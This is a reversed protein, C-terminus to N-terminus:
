QRRYIRVGAIETELRYRARLWDWLRPFQELEAYRYSYDGHSTDLIYPPPAADLDHMLMDWGEPVNHGRAEGGSSASGSLVHTYVFRTSPCRDAAQYLPPFWGWVFVREDQRTHARVYDGALRYDPKPTFFSETAAEFLSAYVFFAVALAGSLWVLPRPVGGDAGVGALVALPPLMMLFYHGYMRGGVLAAALMGGLWWWIPAAAAIRARSALFLLPSVTLAYPVLNTALNFAFGHDRNGSPIYHRFVYTWTWFKADDFLGARGLAWVTAALVATFGLALLLADFLGRLWDRRLVRDAGMAAIVAGAVQKLLTTVGALAGAVLYLWPRKRAGLYAYLALSAPLVVFMETNGALIKPYYVTSFVVYSLAAAFRAREPDRGADLAVRRAIGGCVLATALAVLATALHVALMDYRGGLTFIFKYVYFIGPFKNEVGDRYPLGGQLMRCGIAAYSGEDIDMFTRFFSPARLVLTLVALLGLRRNTV